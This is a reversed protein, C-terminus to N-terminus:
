RFIGDLWGLIEWIWHAVGIGALLYLVVVHKAMRDAYAEMLDAWEHPNDRPFRKMRPKQGPPPLADM